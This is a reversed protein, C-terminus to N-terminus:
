GGAARARGLIRRRTGDALTECATRLVLRPARERVRMLLVVTPEPDAKAAERLLWALGKQVMDDDDGLLMETLRAVKPAFMRLRAGRILAVAAARRQWRQRSKAWRWVRATRSPRTVMMPAILYYALADHDAWSSVRSLWSEFRRFERAGLEAVSNQLLCVAFVKEELVRGNFLDDAVDVLFPLGADRLVARRVRGAVKRLEGTYWGRSQIEEKFFRQVGESHPASGGDRLLRRVHDAIERPTRM